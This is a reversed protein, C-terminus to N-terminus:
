AAGATKDMEQSFRAAENVPAVTVSRDGRTRVPSGPESRATPGPGEGALAGAGLLCLACKAEKARTCEPCLPEAGGPLGLMALLRKSLNVAYRQEEANSSPFSRGRRTYRWDVVMATVTSSAARACSSCLGCRGTESGTCDEYTFGRVVPIDTGGIERSM